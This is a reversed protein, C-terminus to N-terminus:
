ASLPALWACAAVNRAAIPVSRVPMHYYSVVAQLRCSATRTACFHTACVIVLQVPKATRHKSGLNQAWCGSWEGSSDSSEPILSVASATVGSCILLEMPSACACFAATSGCTHATVDSCGVVKVSDSCCCCAVAAAGRGVVISHCYHLRGHLAHRQQKRLM